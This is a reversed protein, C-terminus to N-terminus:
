WAIRRLVRGDGPLVLPARALALEARAALVALGDLVDLKTVCLGSVSSHIVSRRLAM